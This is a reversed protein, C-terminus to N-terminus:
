ILELKPFEIQKGFEVGNNELYLRTNKECIIRIIKEAIKPSIKQGNSKKIMRPEENLLGWNSPLKDESIMNDPAIIYRYTSLKLLSEDLLKTSKDRTKKLQKIYKEKDCDIKFQEKLLQIKTKIDDPNNLERTYDKIDQKAEIIFVRSGDTGIVDFIYKGIKVETSIYQCEANLYLWEIAKMKLVEHNHTAM